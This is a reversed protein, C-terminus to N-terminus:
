ITITLYCSTQYNFTLCLATSKIHSVIFVVRAFTKFCVSAQGVSYVDFLWVALGVLVAQRGAVVKSGSGVPGTLIWVCWFRLSGLRGLGFSLRWLGVCMSAAFSQLWFVSFCLFGSNTKCSFFWVCESHQSVHPGSCVWLLWTVPCSSKLASHDLCGVDAGTRGKRGVGGGGKKLPAWVFVCACKLVCVCVYVWACQLLCEILGCSNNNAARSTSTHTDKNVYVCVFKCKRVSVFILMQM